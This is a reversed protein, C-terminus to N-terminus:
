APLKFVHKWRAIQYERPMDWGKAAAGTVRRDLGAQKHPFALTACEAVCGLRPDLCSQRHQRLAAVWNKEQGKRNAPREEPAAAESSDSPTVLPTAGVTAAPDAAPSAPGRALTKGSAPNRQPGNPKKTGRRKRAAEMRLAAKTDEALGPNRLPDMPMPAQVPAADVGPFSFIPEPLPGLALPDMGMEAQPAALYPQAAPITDQVAFPNGVSPGPALLNVGNFASPDQAGMQQSAYGADGWLGSFDNLGDHQPFMVDEGAAPGANGAQEVAQATALPQQPPATFGQQVAPSTPALLAPDIVPDSFDESLFQDVATQNVPVVPQGNVEASERFQHNLFGMDLEQGDANTPFAAFLPFQDQQVDAGLQQDNVATDAYAGNDIFSEWDLDDAFAQDGAFSM